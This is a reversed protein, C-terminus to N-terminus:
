AVDHHPLLLGRDRPRQLSVLMAGDPSFAVSDVRREHARFSLVTAAEPLDWVRVTADSGGSALVKARPSFALASVPGAHGEFARLQREKRVSWIRVTGDGCGAALLGHLSFALAHVGQACRLISIGSGRDADWLRIAGDGGAAALIAGDRSLALCHAEGELRLGMRWHAPTSLNPFPRAAARWGCDKWVHITGGSAAALRRGDHSVAVGWCPLLAELRFVERGTTPEWLIIAGDLNGLAWVRGDAFTGASCVAGKHWRVRLLAVGRRADWLRIEDSDTAAM